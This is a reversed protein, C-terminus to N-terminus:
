RLRKIEHGSAQDLEIPEVRINERMLDLLETRSLRERRDSYLRYKDVLALLNERTTVRQQIVQIREKAASSVTPRVLETPIQQTEVLIKGESLYTPPWLMAVAVGAAAVLLFPILFFSYERKQLPLTSACTWRETAEIEYHPEIKTQLM